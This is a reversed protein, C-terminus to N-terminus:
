APPRRRMEDAAAAIAENPTAFVSRVAGAIMLNFPQGFDEVEAGSEDRRAGHEDWTFPIREVLPRLDSSYGFVPIGREIAMGIEVATGDDCHPGRFPSLDAIVADARRLMQGCSAFIMRMAIQGDEPLAFGHDLPFLGECGHKACIAKLKEGRERANPMFVTPGALYLRPM